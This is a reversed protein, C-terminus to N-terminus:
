VIKLNNNNKTHCKVLGWKVLLFINHMYFHLNHIKVHVLVFTRSTTYQNLYLTIYYLM